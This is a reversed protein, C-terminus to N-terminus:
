RLRSQRWLRPILIKMFTLAITILAIVLEVFQDARSQDPSFIVWGLAAAALVCVAILIILPFARM